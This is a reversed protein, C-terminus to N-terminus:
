LPSEGAQCTQRLFTQSSAKSKTRFFGPEVKCSFHRARSILTQRNRVAERSAPQALEWPVIFHHHDPAGPPSCLERSAARLLCGRQCFAATLSVSVRLQLSLLKRVLWASLPSSYLPAKGSLFKALLPFLLDEWLSRGRCLGANM